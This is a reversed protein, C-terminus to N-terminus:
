GIRFSAIVKIQAAAIFAAACIDSDVGIDM